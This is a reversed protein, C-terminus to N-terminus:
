SFREYFFTILDESVKLSQLNKSQQSESSMITRKLESKTGCYEIISDQNKELFFNYDILKQHQFM